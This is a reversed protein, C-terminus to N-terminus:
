LEFSREGEPCGFHQNALLSFLVFKPCLLSVDQKSNYHLTLLGDRIVYIQCLGISFFRVGMKLEFNNEQSIIAWSLASTFITCM